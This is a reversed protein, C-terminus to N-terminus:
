YVRKFPQITKVESDDLTNFHVPRYDLTVKGTFQDMWGVTHKMWNVDDRETFDDRAHAGRSEKRAEASHMTVVASMLL